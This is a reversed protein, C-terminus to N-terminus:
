RARATHPNPPLSPSRTNSANSAKSAPTRPIAQLYVSFNQPSPGGPPPHPDSAVKPSKEQRARESRRGSADNSLRGM